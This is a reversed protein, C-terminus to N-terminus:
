LTGKTSMVGTIRKDITTAMDLARAFAKFISEIIHHANDGYTVNIHLSMGSRQTYACFFEKVLEVDFEGVKEKTLPANFVLHPRNCIDLVVSGLAEGMPVTAEGYRRIGKGDGLAKKVCEGLCIGVDEVTHHDDVKIDGKARLTIDFLGHQALLELMHDLFPVSTHIASKGSGDIVVEAVIETEKTKREVKAKRM